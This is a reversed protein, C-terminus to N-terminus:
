YPAHSLLTFSGTTPIPLWKGAVRSAASSFGRIQQCKARNRGITEGLSVSQFDRHGWNSEPVAWWEETATERAEGDGGKSTGAVLDGFQGHETRRRAGAGEVLPLVTRPEDAQTAHLAALREAGAKLDSEAVIAYRRYISETRHGVMAIAVSRPVSARKLNRVATRRFDHLLRGAVGAEAVARFLGSRLGIDAIWTAQYGLVANLVKEWAAQKRAALDRM